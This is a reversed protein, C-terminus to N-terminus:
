GVMVFRDPRESACEFMEYVTRASDTESAEGTIGITKMWHFIRRCQANNWREDADSHYTWDVLGYIGLDLLYGVLVSDLVSMNSYQITCSIWGSESSTNPLWSCILERCKTLAVKTSMIPHDLTASDLQRDIWEITLRMMRVRLQQFGTYSGIREQDILIGYQDDEDDDDYETADGTTQKDQIDSESSEDSERKQRKAVPENGDLDQKQAHQQNEQKQEQTGDPLKQEVCSSTRKNGAHSNNKTSRLQYVLLDAGM